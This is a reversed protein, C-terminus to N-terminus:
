TKYDQSIKEIQLTKATFSVSFSLNIDDVSFVKFANNRWREILYQAIIKCAHKLSINRYLEFSVSHLSFFCACVNKIDDIKVSQDFCM